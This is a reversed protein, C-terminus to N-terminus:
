IENVAIYLPVAKHETNQGYRAEKREYWWYKVLLMVIHEKERYFMILNVPHKKTIKLVESSLSHVTQSAVMVQILSHNESM